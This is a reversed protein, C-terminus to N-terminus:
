ELYAEMLRFFRRIQPDESAQDMLYHWGAAAVARPDNFKAGLQFAYEADHRVRRHSPGLEKAPADIDANVADAIEPPIGMFVALRNHLPRNPL